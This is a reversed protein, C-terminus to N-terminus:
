VPLEIRVIVVIVPIKLANIVTIGGRSGGGIIKHGVAEATARLGHDGNGHDAPSGLQAGRAAFQGAIGIALYPAWVPLSQCYIGSAPSPKAEAVPKAM